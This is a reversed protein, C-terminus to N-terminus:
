GREVASADIIHGFFIANAFIKNTGYWFARFNPNNGLCIVKGTGNGSIVISAANKILTANSSKIYGSLLPNNTFVSPTAYNNKTPKMFLTNSQFVPLRKQNYGYFIPHTLDIETEFIAGGIVESGADDRLRDYPIRGEKPTDKTKFEVKALGRSALWSIAREMGIITGGKINWEKLSEAGATSISNYFGDVLIIVNYQSLDVSGLRSTEIKTVTIEYRVDAQHWAEGADTNSVGDGVILAINPVELPSFYGSGLDVGENTLGTNFDYIQIGTTTALNQLMSHLDNPNLKQNQVPILITGQKFNKDILTFPKTSVKARIGAKLIANLLKPAYYDDWEFAYAYNSIATVTPNPTLNESLVLAGLLGKTFDTKQLPSYNLNYALPLTWASIDYFLSDNFITSKEFMGRILRYQTQEMPVLFAHNPDFKKGEIEIATALRYTSIQHSLLLSLFANLRGKDAKEEFIYAKINDTQAEELATKYFSRQYNLLEQRLEQGADLTSLATTVQNRITFPFSLEGNATNQLHGRSSAQEFLIGICGNVDPYTSGKGYYFDDYDEQTYYFSGIKDLAAAHFNGIKATLEQNKWPTIPNTRQPLGPQFFFSSNSGMEHHDTLINPKWDHFTRLRGKSEPHVIPLWDRNLDFWYHNSRGGPWVERYERDQPDATLNKNKHQNAWTSFRQFGDPNFCPDFLVITNELLQEVEKSKGASLYYAVLPAANGGSAENGHISFGQYVVTPMQSVDLKSSTNPNSLQIHQSKLNQLNEHNKESTIILYISPRDEHTRAYEVLKVRKSTAALERMYMYQKDHSLHWIGIQHGFVSEPTPITKDYVIDPLYYTIPIQTFGNSALVFASLFTLFLQKM